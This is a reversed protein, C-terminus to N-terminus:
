KNDGSEKDQNNMDKKGSYFINDALIGALLYDRNDNQVIKEVPQFAQVAALANKFLLAGTKIAYGYTMFLDDLQRKLLVSKKTRLVGEFMGFNKNDAKSQSLLYYALQGATFYFEQDDNIDAVEQKAFKRKLEATLQTLKGVKKVSGDIDFYILWGLRLNFAQGLNGLSTGRITKLLQIEILQQTLNDIMPKLTLDTGKFFFDYFAQRSSLFLNLMEGPFVGSNIRPENSLMEAHLYNKFFYQSTIHFLEKPNFIPDRNAAILYQKKNVWEKAQITNIMLFPKELQTGRAFPTKEYYNIVGNGDLQLHITENAKHKVEEGFLTSESIQHFIMSKQSRLWFFLNKRLEAEEPSVLLPVTSKKTRSKLFPKKSNLGINYSPVGYLGSTLEVNFDDKLFISPIMYIQNEWLYDQEKAEFFLKVYNKITYEKKIKKIWLILDSSNDILYQKILNKYDTRRESGLYEKLRTYGLISKMKQDKATLKETYFTQIYDRWESELLFKGKKEEKEKQPDDAIFTDMKMFLTLYNTNHLKKTGTDVFKNASIANSYLDRPLFWDKLNYKAPDLEEKKKVILLRDIYQKQNEQLPLSPNIKLYIGEKLTYNDLIIQGNTQEVAKKYVVELDKIM